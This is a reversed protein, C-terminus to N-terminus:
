PRAGIADLFERADQMIQERTQGAEKWYGRGAADRRARDIVAVLLLRCRGAEELIVAEDETITQRIPKRMM